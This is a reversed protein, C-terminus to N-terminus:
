WKKLSNWQDTMIHCITQYAMNTNGITVSLRTM